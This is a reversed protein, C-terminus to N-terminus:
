ETRDLLPFSQIKSCHALHLNRRMAFSEHVGELLDCDFLYLDCKPFQFIIEIGTKNQYILKLQFSPDKMKGLILERFNADQIFRLSEYHQLVIKRTEFKVPSLEKTSNLFKLYERDRLYRKIELYLDASIIKM